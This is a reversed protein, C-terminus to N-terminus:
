ANGYVMAEIISIDKQTLGLVRKDDRSKKIIVVDGYCKSKILKAGIVNPDYMHSSINEFPAENQLLIYNTNPINTVWNGLGCDQSYISWRNRKVDTEKIIMNGAKKIILYRFM